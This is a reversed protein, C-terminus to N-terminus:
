HILTQSVSVTSKEGRSSFLHWYLKYVCVSASVYVFVVFTGLSVKILIIDSKSLFKKIIKGKM